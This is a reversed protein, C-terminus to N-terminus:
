RVAQCCESQGSSRFTFGNGYPVIGQRALFNVVRYVISTISPTRETATCSALCPTCPPPQVQPSQGCPARSPCRRATASNRRWARRTPPRAPTQGGRDRVRRPRERCHTDSSSVWDARARRRGAAAGLALGPQVQQPPAGETTSPRRPPRAAGRHLREGRDARAPRRARVAPSSAARPRRAARQRAADRLQVPRPAPHERRHDALVVAEGGGTGHGGAHTSSTTKATSTRAPCSAAAEPCPSRSASIAPSSSARPAPTTVTRATTHPTATSTRRTTPSRTSPCRSCFTRASRGRAASRSVSSAPRPVKASM